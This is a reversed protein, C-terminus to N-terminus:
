NVDVRSSYMTTNEYVIKYFSKSGSMLNSDKYKKYGERARGVYSYSLDEKDIGSVYMAKYIYCYKYENPYCSWTLNVYSNYVYNEKVYNASFRSISRSQNSTKFSEDEYQGTVNCGFFLFLLFVGIIKIVNKKMLLGKDEVLLYKKRLQHNIIYM